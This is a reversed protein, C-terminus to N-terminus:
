CLRLESALLLSINMTLDDIFHGKFLWMLSTGQPCELWGTHLQPKLHTQGLVQEKPISLEGEFLPGRPPM